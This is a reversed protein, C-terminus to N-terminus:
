VEQLLIYPFKGGSTFTPAPASLVSPPPFSAPRVGRAQPDNNGSQAGAYGFTTIGNDVAFGIWYRGPALTWTFGLATLSQLFRGAVPVALSGTTYLRGFGQDYIAIAYNGSSAGVIGRYQIFAVSRPIILQELVIDNATYTALGGGLDGVAVNELAPFQVTNRFGM